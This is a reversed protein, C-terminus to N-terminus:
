PAPVYVSGREMVADLIGTEIEDAADMPSPPNRHPHPYGLQQEVEASYLYVATVMLSLPYFLEPADLDLQRLRDFMEAEPVDHLDALIQEIEGFSADLIALAEATQTAFDAIDGGAPAEDHAPILASAVRRLVTLENDNLVRRARKRVTPASLRTIAGSTALNENQPDTM